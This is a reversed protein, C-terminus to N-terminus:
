LCSSVYYQRKTFGRCVVLSMITDRQSEGVFLLFCLLRKTIGRCVVLSMITYRQSGWCVVLSM